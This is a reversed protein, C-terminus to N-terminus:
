LKGIQLVTAKRTNEAAFWAEVIAVDEPWTIKINAPSGMVMLPKAGMREMAQAEDTPTEGNQLMTALASSLLDVPFLQPTQACWLDRRDLTQTIKGASDSRKLTDAVPIALIAGDPEALGKELLNELCSYPLCPRAADHVLVWEVEPLDNRISQLGNLVSEARSSGGTVTRLEFDDSDFLEAFKNDGAALVITIGSIVPHQKIADITHALVPRGAIRLYQKLHGGGFRQGCGAAPILAHVVARRQDM